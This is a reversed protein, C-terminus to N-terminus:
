RPPVQRAQPIDATTTLRLGVAGILIVAIAAYGWLPRSFGDSLKRFATGAVELVVALGLYIWAQLRESGPIM